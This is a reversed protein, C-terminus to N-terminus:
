NNPNENCKFKLIFLIFSALIKMSWRIGIWYFPEPKNFKLANNHFYKHAGTSERNNMNITEKNGGWSGFGNYKAIADNSYYDIDKANLILVNNEQLKTKNMRAGYYKYIFFSLIVPGTMKNALWYYKDYFHKINVLMKKNSIKFLGNWILHFNERVLIDKYIAFHNINKNLIITADMYLFDENISKYIRYYDSCFAFKKKNFNNHYFKSTKLLYDHENKTPGLYIDYGHKQKIEQINKIIKQKIEENGIWYMLINIKKDM